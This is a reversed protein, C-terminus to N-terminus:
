NRNPYVFQQGISDGPYFWSEIAMPSNSSPKDFKFVSKNPATLRYDSVAMVVALLQTEDGSWVEVINREAVSNALKFVYTGAPLARGPIEVPNNFTVTTKENWTDARVASGLIACLMLACFSLATAKIIRM